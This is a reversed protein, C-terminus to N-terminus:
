KKNKDSKKKDNMIQDTFNRSAGLGKYWHYPAVGPVLYNALLSRSNDSQYQQKQTRRPTALATIAAALLALGTVGAGIGAGVKAGEAINGKSRGVLAGIGAGIGIPLLASTNNGIIQHAPMNSSGQSALRRRSAINYAGVGPIFAAEPNRQMDNIDQKRQQRSKGSGSLSGALSGATNALLVPSYMGPISGLLVGTSTGALVDSSMSGRKAINTFYSM